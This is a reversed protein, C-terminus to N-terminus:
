ASRGETRLICGNIRWSGDPQRQMLYYATVAEGDPGVVLVRQTPAGRFDVLDLFEVERPRYVPEYGTRVMDMFTAPDRFRSQIMPSAFSFARAGDDAQFADLQARIVDRISARDPPTVDDLADAQATVAGLAVVAILLVTHVISRAM